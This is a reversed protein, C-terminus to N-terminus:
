KYCENQVLSKNANIQPDPIPFITACAKDTGTKYQFPKTYAGFRIMDQRRYAEAFMERGREALMNAPTLSTLASVGARKRVDNFAKLAEADAYTAPAGAARWKAEAKMMLIDAYRFIPFDNDLNRTSGLKYTYKSVRAGAQRYCNPELQNLEPTFKLPKGDPDDAQDDNLAVGKSSFQQGALFNNARRTDTSDYSNYFESLSCYGNWPQEQTEFTNQSQYHLTMQVLNFGQAFTADYPVVLINELSADNNFTFNAKYNDEIKFLGSAIIEDCAAICETYKKASGYAESNLYLKALIAQGAYFTMRGYNRSKDLLPVNTKLESEIFTVVEARTKTAPTAEAKSFATVIPVNGFLDCLWYYYLARLVKLESTFKAALKPDASTLTELLRNCTAVGGFCFKWANNFGDEKPNHTHYHLRLLQGGDLWDAGRHPIVMEDTTIEQITFITNHNMFGYLSTYAAGVAAIIEEETKLFDKSEIQDYTTETLDTCANNFVTLFIGVLLLKGSLLIKKMTM